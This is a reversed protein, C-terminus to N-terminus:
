RGKLLITDFGLNYADQMIMLIYQDANMDTFLLTTTARFAPLIPADSSPNGTRFFFFSIVPTSVAIRKFLLWASGGSRVGKIAWGSYAVCVLWVLKGCNYYGIGDNCKKSGSLVTGRLQYALNANYSFAASSVSRSHKRLIKM